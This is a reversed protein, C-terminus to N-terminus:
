FFRAKVYEFSMSKNMPLGVTVYFYCSSSTTGTTIIASTGTTYILNQGSLTWVLQPTALGGIV